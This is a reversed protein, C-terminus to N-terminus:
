GAEVAAKMHIPRFHPPTALLIVDIGSAIVKRYADFGVFCREEPVDIKHAIEKQQKLQQLSGKLRDDFADGMAVLKVHSEASLAQAAAGSGRGGCGVLGVRLIDSAAASANRQVLESAAMATTAAAIGSSKLFTRRSLSQPRTTQHSANM